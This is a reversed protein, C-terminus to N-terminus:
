IEEGEEEFEEGEELQIGRFVDHLHDSMAQINAEEISMSMSQLLKSFM